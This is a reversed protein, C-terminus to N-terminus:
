DLLCPNIKDEKFIKQTASILVKEGHINTIYYNPNCNKVRFMLAKIGSILGEHKTKSYVYNSCSIKFLCKRRKSIPILLWYIKISALLFYKM